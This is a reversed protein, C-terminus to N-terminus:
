ERDAGVPKGVRNRKRKFRKRSSKRSAFFGADLKESSARTSGVLIIGDVHMTAVAWMASSIEKSNTHSGSNSSSNAAAVREALKAVVSENEESELVSKARMKAMGWLANAGDQSSIKAEECM